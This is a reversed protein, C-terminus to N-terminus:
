RRGEVEAALEYLERTLSIREGLFRVAGTEHARQNFWRQWGAWSTSAHGFGCAVHNDLASIVARTRRDLFAQARAAAVEGMRARRTPDTLAEEIAIRAECEQLGERMMLLRATLRAGDPGPPAFTWVSHQGDLNAWQTKPYRAQICGVREGKRNRLAPWFDFGVRGFGRMKGVLCIEGLLRSISLTFPAGTRCFQAISTDPAGGAQGPRWQWAPTYVLCQYATPVGRVNDGRGHSHRMWRMGPLLDKFLDVAEGSPYADGGLGIMAAKDLGRAALRLRVGELMKAFLARNEPTGYRPIEITETRGTAPDLATVPVPGGPDRSGTGLHRDWLYLCVIRPKGMARTATDLYREMVSYDWAYSGDALRIWRVMSQENGQNTRCVLPVYLTWNGVVGLRELSRELLQWHREGYLPVDYWLAVSEPSEIFDVLTHFESPPPLTFAAVSLRVPVSAPKVGEARLTLAGAYEGAPTGRPVDFTVWVPQVFPGNADEGERPPALPGDVVADYGPSLAFRVRACASPIVGRGSKEVLDSMGATLNKVPADCGVVVKGSFLGGRAGAIRMFGSPECPDGWDGAFDPAAPDGVWVQLGKPRSVNPAVGEGGTATLRVSSFGCTGWVGDDYHTGAARYKEAFDRRYPARHIAIALVNVGKQLRERPVVIDDSRRDRAQWRAVNGAKQDAGSWPPFAELLKGDARFFSEQPYGAALTLPGIAGDPPLHRRAVEVGNLYVAVGGRYALSLRLEGAAAPDDVRFRGRMAILALCGPSFERGRLGTNMFAVSGWGGQGRPGMDGPVRAWQSDDFDPATWDEPPLPTDCTPASGAVPAEGEIIPPKLVYWVRWFGGTDLVTAPKPPTVSADAAAAHAPWAAIASACAMSILLVRARM